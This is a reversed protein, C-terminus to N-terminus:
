KMAEKALKDFASTYADAPLAIDMAKELFKLVQEKTEFTFEVEPDKWSSSLSDGREREQNAKQITPDTCRVEYGEREREIRICNYGVTSVKRKFNRSYPLV